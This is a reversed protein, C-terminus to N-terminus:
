DGGLSTGGQPPPPTTTPEQKGGGVVTSWLMSERMCKRLPLNCSLRGSETARIEARQKAIGAPVHIGVLHVEYGAKIVDEMFKLTSADKFIGPLVFDYGEALLESVISNSAKYMVADAGSSHFWGPLAEFTELLVVESKGRSLKQAYHQYQGHFRRIGDMDLNVMRDLELKLERVVHQLSSTKGAAPLGTVFIGQPSSPSARPSARLSSLSPKPRPKLAELLLEKEPETFSRCPVEPQGPVLLYQVRPVLVDPCKLKKRLERFEDVTVGCAFAIEEPSLLESAKLEAPLLHLMGMVELLERAESWSRNWVVVGLLAMMSATRRGDACRLLVPFEAVLLARVFQGFSSEASAEVSDECPLPLKIYLGEYDLQKAEPHLDIVTRADGQVKAGPAALCCGLQDVMFCGARWLIRLMVEMSGETRLSHFEPSSTKLELAGKFQHLHAALLFDGTRQAQLWKLQRKVDEPLLEFVRKPAEHLESGGHKLYQLRVLCDQLIFLNFSFQYEDGQLLKASAHEFAAVFTSVLEQLTLSLEPKELGKLEQWLQEREECYLIVDECDALTALYKQAECASEVLLCDLRQVEDGWMALLKQESLLCVGDGRLWDKELAEKLAPLLAKPGVVCVDLDSWRTAEGRAQSGFLLVAAVRKTSEAWRRLWSKLSAVSPRVIKKKLRAKVPLIVEEYLCEFLRGNQGAAGHKLVAKRMDLFKLLLEEAIRPHPLQDLPRQPSSFIAKILATSSEAECPFALHRLALKLQSGVTDMGFGDKPAVVPPPLDRAPWRPYQGPVVGDPGAPTAWTIALAVRLDGSCAAASHWLRSDFLVADGPDVQLTVARDKWEASNAKDEFAPDLFDVAAKIGHKHSGPLMELPSASAPTLAVWTTCSFLQSGPRWAYSLDQHAHTGRSAQRSKRFITSGVPWAESQLIAEVQPRLIPAITETMSAVRSNWHSWKNVVALYTRLPLECDAAWLKLDSEFAHLMDAAVEPPLASSLICFGTDKYVENAKPEVATEDRPNCPRGQKSTCPFRKM